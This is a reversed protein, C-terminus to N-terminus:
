RARVCKRLISCSPIVRVLTYQNNPHLDFSEVLLLSLMYILAISLYIEAPSM